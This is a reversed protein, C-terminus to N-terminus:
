RARTGFRGPCRTGGRVRRTGQRLVGVVCAVRRDENVADWLRRLADRLLRRAAIKLRVNTMERSTRSADGPGGAGHRRRRRGASWSGFLQLWRRAESRWLLGLILGGQLADVRRLQVGMLSVLDVDRETTIACLLDYQGIPIADQVYMDCVTCVDGLTM